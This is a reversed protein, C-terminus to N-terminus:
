KLFEYVYFPRIYVFKANDFSMSFDSKEENYPFDIGFKSGNKIDEFVFVNQRSNIDEYIVPPSKYRSDDIRSVFWAKGGSYLNVTRGPSVVNQFHAMAEHDSVDHNNHIAAKRRIGEVVTSIIEKKRKEEKEREKRQEEKRIEYLRRKEEKNVIM